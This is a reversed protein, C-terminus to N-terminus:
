NRMREWIEAENKRNQNCKQGGPCQETVSTNKVTWHTRQYQNRVFGKEYLLLNREMGQESLTEMFHPCPINDLAKLPNQNTQDSLQGHLFNHMQTVVAMAWNPLVKTVGLLGKGWKGETGVGVRIGPCDSVEKKRELKAIQLFKMSNSHYFTYAKTQSRESLISNILDMWVTTDATWKKTNSFYNVNSSFEMAHISWAKDVWWDIPMRTIHTIELKENRPIMSGHVNWMRTSIHRHFFPGKERPHIGLSRM